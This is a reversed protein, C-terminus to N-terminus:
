LMRAMLLLAHTLPLALCLMSAFGPLISLSEACENVVYRKNGPRIQLVVSANKKKGVLSQMHFSDLVTGPLATKSVIFCEAVLCKEPSACAQGSTTKRKKTAPPQAEGESAKAEPNTSAAVVPENGAQFLEGLAQPAVHSTSAELM